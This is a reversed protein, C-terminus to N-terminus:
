IIGPDPLISAPIKVNYPITEYHCYNYCVIVKDLTVANGKAVPPNTLNYAVTALLALVASKSKVM